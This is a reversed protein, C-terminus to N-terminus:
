EVEIEIRGKEELTLENNQRASRLADTIIKKLESLNM